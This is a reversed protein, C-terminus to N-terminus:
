IPSIMIVKKAPFLIHFFPIDAPPPYCSSPFHTRRSSPASLAWLQFTWFVAFIAGKKSLGAGINSYTSCPAVSLDSLKAQGRKTSHLADRQSAITGPKFGLVWNSDLERHHKGFSSIIYISNESIGSIIFLLSFQSLLQLFGMMAFSLHNRGAVIRHPTHHRILVAPHFFIMFQM